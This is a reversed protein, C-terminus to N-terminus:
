PGARGVQSARVGLDAFGPLTAGSGGGLVVSRVARLGPRPLLAFDPVPDAHGATLASVLPCRGCRSASMSRPLPSSAPM